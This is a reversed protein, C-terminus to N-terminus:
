PIVVVDGYTFDGTSGDYFSLDEDFFQEVDRAVHWSRPVFGTPAKLKEGDWLVPM